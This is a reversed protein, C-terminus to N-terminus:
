SLTLNIQHIWNLETSKPLTCKLHLIRCNKDVVPDVFRPGRRHCTCKWIAFVKNFVNIKLITKSSTLSSCTEGASPSRVLRWCLRHVWKSEPRRRWWWCLWWSCWWCTLMIIILLFDNDAAVSCPEGRQKSSPSVRRHGSVRDTSIICLQCM